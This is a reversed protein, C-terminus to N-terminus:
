PKIILGQGTPLCLIEVGKRKAFDDFAYKQEEHGAHGYDDLLMVAGSVLRDWFYEAAAIEPLVCNMDIHLYAIKQSQVETLTEPITGKIIIANHFEKFTERVLEYSPKYGGGTRGFLKEEPTLHKESLGEYTDMLFFKKSLNKFDIYGMVIKSLFGKAVGCEVFDGELSKGKYAAWCAVYARWHIRDSIALGAKVALNYCAIFKGEKMFDCNHSTILEDEEYRPVFRIVRIRLVRFLWYLYLVPKPLYKKFFKKLHFLRDRFTM